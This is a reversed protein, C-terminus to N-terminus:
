PLVLRPCGSIVLFDGHSRSTLVASTTAPTTNREENPNLGDAHQKNNAVHSPAADNDGADHKRCLSVCINSGDHRERRRRVLDGVHQV